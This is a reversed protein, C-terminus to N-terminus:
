KGKYVNRYETTTQYWDWASQNYLYMTKLLNDLTVDSTNGLMDCGYSNICYSVQYVPEEESYSSDIMQMDFVNDWFFPPIGGITVAYTGNGYSAFMDSTLTVNGNEDQRIVSGDSATFRLNTDKARESHIVMKYNEVASEEISFKMTLAMRMGKNIKLYIGEVDINGSAGEARIVTPKYSAYAREPTEEAADPDNSVRMLMAMYAAFTQYGGAGDKGTKGLEWLAALNENPVVQSIESNNPDQALTYDRAGTGFNLMDVLMPPLTANTTGKTLLNEAYQKISYNDKRAIELFQEGDASYYLVANIPEGMNYAYIDSISFAFMKGLSADTRTLNAGDVYRELYIKGDSEDEDTQENQGAQETKGDQTDEHVVKQLNGFESVEVPITYEGDEGLLSNGATDFFGMYYKGFAETQTKQSVDVGSVYYNIDIKNGITLTTGAIRVNANEPAFTVPVYMVVGDSAPIDAYDEHKDWFGEKYVVVKYYFVDSKKYQGTPKFTVDTYSLHDDGRTVKERRPITLTVHLTGGVGYATSIGNGGKGYQVDGEHRITPHKEEYTDWFTLNRIEEESTLKGAPSYAIGVVDACSGMLSQVSEKYPSVRVVDNEFLEGGLSISETDFPDYTYVGDEGLDYVHMTLTWSADDIGDSNSDYTVQYTHTGTGTKGDGEDAATFFVKGDRLAFAGTVEDTGFVTDVGSAHETGSAYEAGDKEADLSTVTLGRITGDPNATLAADEHQVGDQRITSRTVFHPLETEHGLWVYYEREDMTQSNTITLLNTQGERTVAYTMDYKLSDCDDTTQKEEETIADKHVVGDGVYPVGEMSPDAAYIPETGGILVQRPEGRDNMIVSGQEDTKIYYELAYYQKRSDLHGWTYSWGNAASLEVSDILAGTRGNNGSGNSVSRGDNGDAAGRYAPNVSKTLDSVWLEVIVKDLPTTGPAWKKVVKYAAQHNVPIESAYGIDGASVDRASPSLTVAQANAPNFVIQGKDDRTYEVTYFDDNKIISVSAGDGGDSVEPAIEAETSAPSTTSVYELLDTEVTDLMVQVYYQTGTGSYQVSSFRYVGNKDTTTELVVEETHKVINGNEDKIFYGNEDFQPVEETYKVPNGDADMLRVTVGSLVRDMDSQVYRGDMNEDYFILGSVSGKESDAMISFNMDKSANGEGVTYYTWMDIGARDGGGDNGSVTFKMSTRSSDVAEYHYSDSGTETKDVVITSVQKPDSTIDFYTSNELAKSRTGDALNYYGNELDAPYGEGKITGYRLPNNNYYLDYVGNGFGDTGPNTLREVTVGGYMGEVDLLPFHIEGSKAQYSISAKSLAYDSVPIYEGATDKGDWHFVNIGQQVSGDLKIVGSGKYNKLTEDAGPLSKLNIIEESLDIVLTVSTAGDVTFRFDGGQGYRGIGNKFGYFSLNSVTGTDSVRFRKMIDGSPADFFIKYTEQTHTDPLNPKHFTVMEETEINNLNNDDDYFSHYISYPTKTHTTFGMNNAFLIFGFPAVENLSVKYVYGDNTLVHVDTSARATGYGTSLALYKAWARGLKVEKQGSANNGIVTVDWAAVDSNAQGAILDSDSVRKAVPAAQAGTKSHFVFKYTGSVDATFSLPQYRSTDTVQDRNIQPGNMEQTPNKIFGAGDQIVDYAKVLGNPDTVVIDNGTASSKRTKGNIDLQSDPVSSGFLATEGALLEVYIENKREVGATKATEVIIYEAYFRYEKPNKNLQYSCSGYAKVPVDTFPWATNDYAMKEATNLMESISNLISHLHDLEEDTFFSALLGEEELAYYLDCVASFEQRYAEKEEETMSVYTTSESELSVLRSVLESKRSDTIETTQSDSGQPAGVGSPDSDVSASGTEENPVASVADTGPVESVGVVEDVAYAPVAPLAVGSVTMAASLLVSLLVKHFKKVSM